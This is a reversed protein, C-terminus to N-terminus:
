APIVPFRHWLSVMITASGGARRVSLSRWPLNFAHPRKHRSNLGDDEPHQQRQRGAQNQQPNQKPSFPNSEAEVFARLRRGADLHSRRRDSGTRALVLTPAPVVLRARGSSNGNVARDPARPRMRGAGFASRLRIACPIRKGSTGKDSADTRQIDCPLRAAHQDTEALHIEHRLRLVEEYQEILGLPAPHDCPVKRRRKMACKSWKWAAEITDTQRSRSAAPEFAFNNNSSKAVAHLLGRASTWGSRDGAM